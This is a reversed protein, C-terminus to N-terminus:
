EIIEGDTTIFIEKPPTHSSFQFPTIVAAYCGANEMTVIDGAELKPLSINKAVLDAATCLNGCLTVTETEAAEQSNKIV